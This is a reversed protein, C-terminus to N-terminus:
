SGGGVEITWACRAANRGPICTVGDGHGPHGVSQNSGDQSPYVWNEVNTSVAHAHRSKFEETILEIGGYKVRPPSTM